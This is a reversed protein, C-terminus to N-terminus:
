PHRFSIQKRGEQFTIDFHRFVTDRGLISIPIKDVDDPVWVQVSRFTHFSDNGKMLRLEPVVMIDCTFRAGAGLAVATKNTGDQNKVTTLELLEADQKQLFTREAGSDVLAVTVYHAHESKLDIAVVPLKVWRMEGSSYREKYYLYQCVISANSSELRNRRM